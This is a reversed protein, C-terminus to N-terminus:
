QVVRTDRARDPHQEGREAGGAAAPGAAEEASVGCCRGTRAAGLFPPPVWSRLEKPSCSFCISQLSTCAASLILATSTSLGTTVVLLEKKKESCHHNRLLLMYSLLFGM